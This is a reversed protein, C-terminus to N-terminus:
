LENQLQNILDLVVETKDLAIDRSAFVKVSDTLTNGIRDGFVPRFYVKENDVAVVLRHNRTNDNYYCKQGVKIEM